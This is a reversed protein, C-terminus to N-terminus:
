FGLRHLLYDLRSRWGLGYGFREATGRGLHEVYQEIPFESVRWGRQKAAVCSELVPLGHHQFPPLQLYMQRRVMMHASVPVPVGSSSAFGRRDVMAQQGVAFVDGQEDLVASMGELFGGKRTVTDSDLIFVHDASADVLARHMAPGHYLNRPHVTVGTSEPNDTALEELVAVSDDSSGNDVLELREEPYFKRFSTVARRLLDPTQYNIIVTQRSSM